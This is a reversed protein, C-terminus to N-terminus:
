SYCGTEGKLRGRVTIIDSTLLSCVLWFIPPSVFVSLPLFRSLPSSRFILFVEFVDIELPVLEHNLEYMPCKCQVMESLVRNAQNSRLTNRCGTLM